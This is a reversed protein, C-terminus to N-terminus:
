NESIHIQLKCNMENNGLEPFSCIFEVARNAMFNAIVNYGSVRPTDNTFMVNLPEPASLLHYVTILM